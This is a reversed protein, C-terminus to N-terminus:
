AHQFHRLNDADSAQDIQDLRGSGVPLTLLSADDRLRHLPTGAKLHEQWYGDTSLLLAQGPQLTL